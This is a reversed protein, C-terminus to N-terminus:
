SILLYNIDLSPNKETTEKEGGRIDTGMGTNEVTM